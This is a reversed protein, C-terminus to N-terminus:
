ASFDNPAVFGPHDGVVFFTHQMSSVVRLLEALALSSSYDCAYWRWPPKLVAGLAALESEEFEHASTPRELVVFHGAAGDVRLINVQGPALGERLSHRADAICQVQLATQSSIADAIDSLSATRSVLTISRM